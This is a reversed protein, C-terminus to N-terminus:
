RRTTTPATLVPPLTADPNAPGTPVSVGPESVTPDYPEIGRQDCPVDAGGVRIDAGYTARSLGSPSTLMVTLRTCGRSPEASTYTGGDATFPEGGPWSISVTLDPDVRVTVPGGADHLAPDYDHTVYGDATLNGCEWSAAGLTLEVSRGGVELTPAAITEVASDCSGPQPLTEVPIALETSAPGGGDDGGGSCAALAASCV